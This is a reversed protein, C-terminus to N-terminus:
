GRSNGKRNLIPKLQGILFEEVEFRGFDIAFFSIMSSELFASIAQDELPEFYRRRGERTQLNFKLLDTGLNRRVASFYTRGGHTRYRDSIDSSEGIYIIDGSCSKIMYIGPTKRPKVELWNGFPARLCRAAGESILVASKSQVLDWEVHRDAPSCVARKGLQFKNLSTQLNAIGFEEIEKRGINTRLVQCGFREIPIKLAPKASLHTKYFTSRREDFQVKLRKAADKGEGIYAPQGDETILYNCPGNYSTTLPQCLSQKRLCFIGQALILNAQAQVDDWNM